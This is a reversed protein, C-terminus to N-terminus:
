LTVKLRQVPFKRSLWEHVPGLVVFKEWILATAMNGVCLGWLQWRFYTPMVNMGLPTNYDEIYTPPVPYGYEELVSKTGCNFRFLCGFRNPDALAWHSVIAIYLLWLFVLAYNRYFPQRFKYGFNLVAANNIFQFLCVIALVEGEYNDALLWWKSIDVANSDFENCRFWSQQFLMYFACCVYIWNIGVIGLCSALTQPGLIQATPRINELRDAAKARSLAITLLVTILVDVAIWVNQSISTNFYFTIIKLMMMVQGYLILYRYGTISTALAARGQRILEVCSKVSRVSTSFPSVISAEADSMAIGVHAARLAGCDNGGDGTMATIGREMHLQICQVKGHPTMRSFVRIDLLYNRILDHDILWQFAKGTVALEVPTHTKNLLYDDVNVDGFTDPEDVDMWKVRDTDKDYDGLLMKAKDLAMGCQRAIYVGTLATDGTIMVTRTAGRKLEAINETTDPKLQNKFVILGMFRIDEEMKDRKWQKFADMGGVKDLDIERHSLALVYCGQRALDSTVQDYNDPISSPVSLDKIKEYAGKVFIHVKNTLSDLIAVSMSMRAHVFEFRQLVHIPAQSISGTIDHPPILTDVYGKNDDALTWKSSKFMEIDVPNGIFQDNLTTVAHCTALGIQMLRPVQNVDHKLGDFDPKHTQEQDLQLHQMPQAGFFELGEKTLTGTKDFCFLQVKGAMLIRPLDVCYIQKERLRGAAVSQGVVLAAPLLPSLLQCIAFMAYFWASTGKAYLWIALGLCLLGCCLLILIVIRIQEDFIFSVQTPFLIKKILEGKDTATGTHTALAIVRQQKETPQAQSITTGAFITSIKGSGMRDYQSVDDVRLPFKRIPLPEGTLSSEDVVINGSLIVADCPTNKGEDVQFIDGPLLDATSRSQWEGDRLIFVTDTFEAMQKIRKESRIRVVVKVVASLLIVFTDAIGVQWYAFYYFLWLVTFQYIYFFSTFERLLAMLYNPVYVEIFNPGILEERRAAEEETLGQTLQALDANTNGLEFAHPVFLGSEPHYVYRTCQYVFYSTGNRTRNLQSTTVSVDLGFIHKGTAELYRVFDMVKNSQGQLFIIGEQKREIQVYHGEAYSCQLRFYNPLRFRFITIGAFWFFFIYWMGMFTSSQVLANGNFLAYNMYYDKTMMIMYAVQGATQILFLITMITGVFDQKYAKIVLPEEEEEDDEEEIDVEVAKISTGSKEIDESSKLKKPSSLKKEQSTQNFQDKTKTFQHKIVKERISKYFFWSILLAVCSGYFVYLALFVPETFTLPPHIVTPCQGWMPQDLPPLGTHWETVNKIQSTTMINSQCAALGLSTKNSAVFNPIKVRQTLCPYTQQQEGGDIGSCSCASVLNNPCTSGDHCQGDVCYVQNPACSPRIQEPCTSIAQVCLTPCPYSNYTPLPCQNGNLDYGNVKNFVPTAQVIWPLFSLVFTIMWLYFM